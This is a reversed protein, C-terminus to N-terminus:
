TMKEVEFCYFSHFFTSKMAVELSPVSISSRVDMKVRELNSSLFINRLALM